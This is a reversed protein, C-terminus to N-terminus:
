KSERTKRNNELQIIRENHESVERSLVETREVIVALKLNLESVGSTLNQLSNASLVIAGTIMGYFAWSVFDNFRM